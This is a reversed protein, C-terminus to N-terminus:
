IDCRADQMKCRQKRKTMIPQYPLNKRDYKIESHAIKEHLGAVSAIEM